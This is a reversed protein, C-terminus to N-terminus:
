TASANARGRRTGGTAMGGLLVTWAMGAALAQRKTAPDVMAISIIAGFGVFFVIQALVRWRFDDIIENMLQEMGRQFSEGYKLRMWLAFAGLAAYSLMEIPLSEWM